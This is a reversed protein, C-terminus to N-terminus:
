LELGILKCNSSSSENGPLIKGIQIADSGFVEKLEPEMDAAIVIIFGIGCNFTRYLEKLEINGSKHLWYFLPPLEWNRADIIVDTQNPLIRAVNEVLGGGTIHAFAKIKGGSNLANMAEKVYIRTPQMLLKGLEINPDFPAPARLEAGTEKIVKRILSYGNAHAGSTPLGVVIDGPIVGSPLLKSREVAGVCFGALDFHDQAYMGPMEATEGGALACSAQKCGDSIGKVVDRAIKRDLTGCAFYDLFFLPEAGQALVDNACMAVLDIGITDYINTEIAMLLKTGVGDTGSVLIPDKYGAAAIDFLAGFSGISGYSGARATSAALPKIDEVLANGSDIDVGASKYTRRPNVQKSM